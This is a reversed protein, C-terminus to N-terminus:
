ADPAILGLVLDNVNTGTLGTRLLAGAADLADYSAHSELDREPDRRSRRIAEWTSADVVAGAADTPGDRGDTGAALVAIGRGPSGFAALERAAALSLEQCRGGLPAHSRVDRAGIGGGLSVTTEGGWLRLVPRDVAGEGWGREVLARAIAAGCEAADGRLPADVMEVMIGQAQAARAAARVADRNGLVVHQRVRGFLSLGPKPTEAIRGDRVRELYRLVAGPMAGSLRHRRMLGLLDVATSPDPACPGSAITAPDDGIVDSAILCEVRAPALAAALRGGGWRLLRRRLANMEGIDLGSGLLLDFLQQLEDGTVGKVPAAVLSSTGGSLLVYVVDGAAVRDCVRAVSEAARLSRGAPVPHDGVVVEITSHPSPADEPAVIVGGAPETGREYLWDILARSMAHAAKGLAIVYLKGADLPARAPAGPTNVRLDSERALKPPDFGSEQTTRPAPNPLPWDLGEENLARRVAGEPDAGAVGARYLQELLVRSTEEMVVTREGAQSPLFPM